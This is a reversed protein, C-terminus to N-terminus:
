SERPFCWYPCRARHAGLGHVELNSGPLTSASPGCSDPLQRGSMDFLRDFAQRFISDGPLLAPSSVPLTERGQHYVGPRPSLAAQLIWGPSQLSMFWDIGKEM